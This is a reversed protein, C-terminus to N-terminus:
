HSLWPFSSPLIFHLTPPLRHELIERAGKCRRNGSLKRESVEADRAPLFEWSLPQQELIPAEVVWFLYLNIKWHLIEPFTVILSSVKVCFNKTANSVYPLKKFSISLGEM